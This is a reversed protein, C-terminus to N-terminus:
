ADHEGPEDLPPAGGPIARYRGGTRMTGLRATGTESVMRALTTNQWLADMVRPWYTQFVLYRSSVGEAWAHAEAIGRALIRLYAKREPGAIVRRLATRVIRRDVEDSVWDAPYPELSASSVKRLGITANTVELKKREYTWRYVDQLFRAARSPMEPPMHRVYWQNDFWVDFGNMRLDFLYDLDEGRTITSDFGVKCFVEATLAFCGGCIYNSRCIRTGAQMQEMLENFGARKSWPADRWRPKVVDAYASDQRDLFFGSKASIPLGQRNKLGLGYVADILFDEDLAVEDDDLFVVIDHGLVAAVALGMNRIAGYGRLSIADDPMTPAIRAVARAIVRAEDTGVILPNLHPHTRCIGEIRARASAECSSPAVLLIVVRLVGRVADLSSLCTELEPVPKDVPTVHDYTGVEGVDGIRDTLAWYSPIVIVPNM